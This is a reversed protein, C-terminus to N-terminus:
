SELCGKEEQNCGPSAKTLRYYFFVYVLKQILPLRIFDTSIYAVLPLTTTPRTGAVLQWHQLNTEMQSGSNPILYTEQISVFRVKMSTIIRDVALYSHVFDM